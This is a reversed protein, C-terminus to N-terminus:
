FVTNLKKIIVAPAVLAQMAFIIQPLLLSKVICIKGMISCNGKSWTVITRQINEIRPLWNDDIESAPISNSFYIGLIKVRLKWKIDYYVDTCYKKSGLWMAETKNRNMALWSFKSFYSVLSLANKLDDRDQLFLTIDDAYLLLKLFCKHNRPISIGKVSPDARIKKKALLELALIFAMPSFPCGQRIGSSVEISQSLWGMYNICSKTNKMLVKVWKVFNEGFNFRKFAWVIYERSITDFAAKYDLALLLGPRESKDLYNITDDILRIVTSINRSKLFGVQDENVISSIVSSLHIALNKALLKYDSNTLSIPRWNNLDDRPLQKGKHILTIVARKQTTSMEGKTFAANLSNLVMDKAKCWFFKIFATTIGDLGPSSGNKMRKLAGTLEEETLAGEISTKQEDSM